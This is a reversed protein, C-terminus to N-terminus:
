AMLKPVWPKDKGAVVKFKIGFVVVLLVRVHLPIELVSLVVVKSVGLDEEFLWFTHHSEGHNYTRQRM